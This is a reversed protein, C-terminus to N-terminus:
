EQPNFPPNRNHNQSIYYKVLKKLTEMRLLLAADGSLRVLQLLVQVLVVDDDLREVPHVAVSLTEPQFSPKTSPTVSSTKSTSTASSM